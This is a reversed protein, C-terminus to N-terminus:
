RMYPTFGEYDTELLSEKYGEFFALFVDANPYPRCLLWHM